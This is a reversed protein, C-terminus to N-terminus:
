PIVKPPQNHVLWYERIAKAVEVLQTLNSPKVVYGNAGLDYAADMDVQQNSATCVVSILKRLAPQARIWKLVDFGSKIPLKLDLLVLGPLPHEQRDAYAGRGALYDIAEQGDGVTIVANNVGARTLAQRMFLVDSEEDEVHLISFNHM